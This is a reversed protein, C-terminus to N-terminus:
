FLTKAFNWYDPHGKEKMYVWWEAGWLYITNFGTRKAFELHDKLKEPPLQKLQDALPTDQLPKTSWPEAQLESIITMQNNPALLRTLNSKLTYFGPLLPYDFYGVKPAYVTRYLTSGFIDSLRMSTISLKMAEGSDTVIIPHKSDLSRVLKVEEALLSHDLIECETGFQFFPENEVQWYSLSPHEKYRQVVVEVFKLLRQRRQEAPLEIAWDPQHCEPWRPQKIGVVLIVKAQHKHAEDMLYDTRKFDYQDITPELQDWFTSLRLNKVELEGLISQYTKQWDLGFESAYNPSFSVGLNFSEPRPTLKETIWSALNLLM